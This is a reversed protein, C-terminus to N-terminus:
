GTAAVAGQRGGQRAGAARTGSGAAAREYRDVVLDVLRPDVPADDLLPATVVDADSRLARDHFFGPAVMLSSVVVRRDASGARADAVVEALPRGTGGVYGLPVVQGIAVSLDRAITEFCAHAAPDSSGASAMVVVDEDCAGVALLRRVLAGVLRDDPGLTPAAVCGPASAVRAVDVRVHFGPALLLPVVVAPRGLRAVVDDPTPEQVDVFADHVEVHPLRRRVAEVLGAVARQGAPSSTGHSTAVLAPLHSTPTM